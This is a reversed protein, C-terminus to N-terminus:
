KKLDYILGDLKFKDSIEGWVHDMGDEYGQLYDPTPIEEGQKKDEIEQLSYVSAMGYSSAEKNLVFKRIVMNTHAIKDVTAWQIAVEVADEFKCYITGDCKENSNWVMWLTDSM